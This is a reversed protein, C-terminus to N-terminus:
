SFECNPNKVEEGRSSVSSCICYKIYQVCYREKLTINKEDRFATIIKLMKLLQISYFLDIVVQEVVYLM